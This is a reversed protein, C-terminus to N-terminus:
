PEGGMLAEALEAVALQHETRNEEVVQALEAVALQTMAAESMPAAAPAPHEAEWAAIEEEAAGEAWTEARDDWRPRILGKGGAHPRMSPLAADVLSEGELLEYYQINEKPRGDGDQELLVLVLTKYNKEADVVCAHQDDMKIM